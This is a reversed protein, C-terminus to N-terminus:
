ARCNSVLCCERKGTESSKVFWALSSGEKRHGHLGAQPDEGGSSERQSPIM